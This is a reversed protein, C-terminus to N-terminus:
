CRSSAQGPSLGRQSAEQIMGALLFMGTLATLALLFVKVLESLILRSLISGFV